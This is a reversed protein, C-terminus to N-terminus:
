EFKAALADEYAAKMDAWDEGPVDDSDASALLWDVAAARAADGASLRVTIADRIVAAVSQGSRGAERELQEYQDSDLLIQM